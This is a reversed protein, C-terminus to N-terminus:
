DHYRSSVNNALNRRSLSACGDARGRANNLSIDVTRNASGPAALRMTSFPTLDKRKGKSCVLM